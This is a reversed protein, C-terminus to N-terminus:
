KPKPKPAPLAKVASNVKLELAKFQDMEKPEVLSKAIYIYKTASEKNFEVGIRVAFEATGGEPMAGALEDELFKPLYLVTSSFMEGTALNVARFQGGFKVSDGYDSTVLTSRTIVGYVDMLDISKDKFVQEVDVGGCVIKISLKRVQKGRSVQQESM